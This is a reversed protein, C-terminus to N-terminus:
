PQYSQVILPTQLQYLWFILSFWTVGVPAPSSLFRSQNLLVGILPAPVVAVPDRFSSWGIPFGRFMIPSFRDLIHRFFPM